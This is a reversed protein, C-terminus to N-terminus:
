RMTWKKYGMVSLNVTVDAGMKEATGQPGGGGNSGWDIIISSKHQIHM